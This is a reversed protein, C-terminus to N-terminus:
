VELLHHGSLYRAFAMRADKGGSKRIPVKGGDRLIFDQAQADEVYSMNVIFSRHCRLFPPGGLREEVEDLPIRSQVTNNAMHFLTTKDRVEIYRLEALPIAVEGGVAPVQLTRSAKDLEKRCAYLAHDLKDRTLPKVVYSAARVGYGDLAHDMSVTIFVLLCDPDQARIRRAAALGSLGPLYIDLLLLGFAGPAFDSLLAEADAYETLEVTYSNRRCYDEIYSRLLSREERDDECIAIRM